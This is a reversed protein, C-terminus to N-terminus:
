STDRLEDIALMNCDFQLKREFVKEIGLFISLLVTRNIKPMSLLRSLLVEKKSSKLDSCPISHGMFIFQYDYSPQKDEFRQWINALEHQIQRVFIM